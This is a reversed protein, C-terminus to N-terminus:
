GRAFPLARTLYHTGAVARVRKAFVWVRSGKPRFRLAKARVPVIPKHGQHHVYAYNVTSGIRVAPYSNRTVLDTSISARLRGTDVGVFRKAAAEVRKGRRYLDRQIGPGRLVRGVAAHDLVYRTTM